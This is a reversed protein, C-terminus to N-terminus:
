IWRKRRYYIIQLVTTVIILSWSWWYGYTWKLEPMSRIFNQGYLGVIFTPVLILSAIVTLKKVVENQDISIRAQQYDRAAALLDRAFEISETARLLKDYTTAFLREIERPFVDRAFPLGGEVEVRGDVIERVADRTPGLTKRIHLLDHRLESLRRRSKEAPWHDIHEELEDIEEDVDDLLDLYREAVDDVLHFAIQGPPLEHPHMDCVDSVREAPYPDRAGPTKRVTVIRKRTLVFDVEQYYVVDESPVAVASLLIGIVYAGHSRISPRVRSGDEQAPRLLHQLADPRVDEPLAERLTAEDPDLLDTWASRAM